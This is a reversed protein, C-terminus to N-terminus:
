FIKPKESARDSYFKKGKQRILNVIMQPTTEFMKELDEKVIDKDTTLIYIEYHRQSNMSARLKLSWFLTSLKSTYLLDKDSSLIRCTDQVLEDQDIPVICELGESCWMIIFLNENENILNNM